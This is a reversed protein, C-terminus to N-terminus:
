DMSPFDTVAQSVDEGAGVRALLQWWATRAETWGPTVQHYDGMYPMFISYETMLMDNEYIDSDMERVPWYSSVLVAKTYPMDNETVYRIFTKAAEIRERSGNDFIGLGWIGGELKPEDQDTPFAIPFVQFDLDSNNITQQVELSANWCFCMASEKRCFLEIAKASGFDPEFTIGELDYLLQLARINAESDVTYGSHASDTFSGGYLNTVLARTGQDGSQNGCYVMGANEQGWATLAHVANVFGETTWTHTKEDIYQLADAERFMDYNIAMCHASMCIPFEYYAGNRHRCAERVNEYVAGAQPSDWLDSLDAMWGQEGWSAVLREPGEFVLDPACGDQFAQSIQADGSDYDLYEVSVHIDPHEKHFGALINSVATPNGWNGVPFTWLALEITGQDAGGGSGDPDAAPTRGGCAALLALFLLLCILVSTRKM